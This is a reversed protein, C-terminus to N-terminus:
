DRVPALVHADIRHLVTFEEPVTRELQRAHEEDFRRVAEPPLTAGVGRCARFRGRWSERTFPVPEDYWFFGTVRFHGNAWAPEPPIEGPWDAATWDPNHALVLEESARAVPDLRPLWSFHCTVLRGDDALLRHVRPIMREPDFYLWCQGATIVDFSGDPARFEEAPGVRYDIALGEEEAARRAEEIQPASVDVGAVRCGRRALERALFGVGTGLDLVRQDPRGIGLAALRHFLSAPYTPRWRAYDVSTAGWDV